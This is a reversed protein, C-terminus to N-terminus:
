QSREEPFVPRDEDRLVQGDSNKEGAYHYGYTVLKGMDFPFNQQRSVTKVRRAMDNRSLREKRPLAILIKNGRDEVDMIYLEDFVEQYTRVMSDYLSNSARSWINGIVVGKPTLARRVAYLFEQTTLSYPVNDAGFADLFIADYRNRYQEIFKRGDKVEAHTRKDPMRESQKHRFGFFRGAVDLVAPDLEVVDITLQPYHKRLFSPITGGGLGVILVREPDRVLGLGVPMVKAYPLEIHDPDGPKVVSQKAGDKEFWLTRLGQEDETVIITNYDSKTEYLVKQEAPSFVCFALIAM